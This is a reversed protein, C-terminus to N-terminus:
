CLTGLSDGRCRADLARRPEAVTAPAGKKWPPTDSAISIHSKLAGRAAVRDCPAREPGRGGGRGRRRTVSRLEVCVLLACPAGKGSRPM